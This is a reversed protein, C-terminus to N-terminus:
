HKASLAVVHEPSLELQRDTSAAPLPSDCQLAAGASPEDAPTTVPAHPPGTLWARDAPSPKVYYPAVAASDNGPAPASAPRTRRVCGAASRFLTTYPFLPPSPLLHP